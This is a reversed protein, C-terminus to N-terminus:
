IHILSLKYPEIQIKDGHYANLLDESSIFYDNEPTTAFGFSYGKGLSTGDFTADILTTSNSNTKKKATVKTNPKLSDKVGTFYQGEKILLNDKILKRVTDNLNKYDHKKISLISSIEKMKLQAGPYRSFLELVQLEIEKIYM